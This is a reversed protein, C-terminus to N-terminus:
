KNAIQKLTDMEDKIFTDLRTNTTKMEVKVENVLEKFSAKLEITMTKMGDVISTIEKQAMADNNLSQNAKINTNIAFVSIWAAWSLVITIGVGTVITEM